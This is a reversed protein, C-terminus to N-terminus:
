TLNDITAHYLYRRTQQKSLGMIKAIESLLKGQKALEKAEAKRLESLVSPYTDLLCEPFPCQLCDPYFACGGSRYIDSESM